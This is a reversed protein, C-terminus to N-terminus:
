FFFYDTAKRKAYETETLHKYDIMSERKSVQLNDKLDRWTHESHSSFNLDVSVGCLHQSSDSWKPFVGWSENFLLPSRSNDRM